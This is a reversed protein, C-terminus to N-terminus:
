SLELFWYCSQFYSDICSNNALTYRPPISALSRSSWRVTPLSSSPMSSSYVYLRSQLSAFITKSDTLMPVCLRIGCEGRNERDYDYLYGPMLFVAEHQWFGRLQILSNYIFALSFCFCQLIFIPGRRQSSTSKLVLAIALTVQIGLWLNATAIKRIALKITVQDFPKIHYLQDSTHFLTTSSAM